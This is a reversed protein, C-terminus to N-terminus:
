ELRVGATQHITRLGQLDIGEFLGCTTGLIFGQDQSLAAIEAALKELHSPEGALQLDEVELTGWLCLGPYSKKLELPDMGAQKEFCQLGQFGCAILDPIIQSYNGDTHFFVPVKGSAAQLQRALSPFFLERLTLPNVMLGRTYAIDDAIIIGDVGRDILRTILQRNLQEVKEILARCSRRSSRSLMMLFETYGCTRTGWGFAGDLLAFTFLSTRSVWRELDPLPNELAAPIDPGEPYVPALTVLDLGMKEIFAAKREFSDRGNLDRGILADDIVLEGRPLRDLPRRSIAARVRERSSLM